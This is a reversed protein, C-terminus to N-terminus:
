SRATPLSSTGPRPRADVGAAKLLNMNYYVFAPQDAPIGILKGDITLEAVNNSSFRDKWSADASLPASWDMLQGSKERSLDSPNFNYLFLDPTKGASILSRIQKQLTPWDPQAKSVIMYEGEHQANFEKILKDLV